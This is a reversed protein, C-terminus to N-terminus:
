GCRGDFLWAGSEFFLSEEGQRMFRATKALVQMPRGGGCDIKGAAEFAADYALQADKRDLGRNGPAAVGILRASQGQDLVKVLLFREDRNIDFVEVNKADREAGLVQADVDVEAEGSACATLCWALAIYAWARM